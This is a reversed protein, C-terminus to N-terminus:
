VDAGAVIGQLVEPGFSPEKCHMAWMGPNDAVFRVLIWGYAEVSVTDRRLPNTTNIEAYHDMDIYGSGQDLVWFQHGHMHFPHNGDDFNSIYLDVVKNEELKFVLQRATNYAGKLKTNQPNTFSINNAKLGQIADLLTPNPAPRWSTENMFGRSLMYEGTEFNTRIFVLLDATKPADIAHLPKVLTLNMDKCVLDPTDRWAKTDPIPPLLPSKPTIYNVIAKVETELMEPIEAFCHPLMRARLWFSEGALHNARIIASYRQAVNIRLRNISQPVVEVGDIEVLAMEHEDLEVDFEAFGGVNIFRLRHAKDRALDFAELLSRSSDCRYVTAVRSCNIVGKGNILAGNPIPEANNNSPSLYRPLLSSSLDHYYDQVMVVRDTAYELDIREKPSHVVVPGFLGDLRTTSFHAHYWYTGRIDDVKFEYRFSSGPPIPCNTVGVTGDMFNTGKQRFGHWHLSTSNTLQNHLDIVLTDGENVEILPGPFQGNIGLLTRWVGTM